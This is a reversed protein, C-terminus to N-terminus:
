RPIDLEIGAFKALTTIVKRATQEAFGDTDEGRKKRELNEDWERRILYEERDIEKLREPSAM